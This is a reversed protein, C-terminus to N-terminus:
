FIQFFISVKKSIEDKLQFGNVIYDRNKSNLSIQNANIFFEDHVDVLQGHFIWSEIFNIFPNMSKSLFHLILSNNVPHSINEKSLKLLYIILDIGRVFDVDGCIDLKCLKIVFEFQDLLYKLKSHLSIITFNNYNLLSEIIISNYYKLYEKIAITFSTFISGRGSQIFKLIKLHYSGIKSFKECYFSLAEASVGSLHLQVNFHFQDKTKNLLFNHSPLSILVNLCDVILNKENIITRTIPVQLNSALWVSNLYNYYFSDFVFRSSDILLNRSEFNFYLGTKRSEWDYYKPYPTHAVNQWILNMLDESISESSVSIESGKISYFGEDRNCKILSMTKVCIQEDEYVDDMENERKEKLQNQKLLKKKNIWEFNDNSPIQWVIPHLYDIEPLNFRVNTGDKVNTLRSSLSSFLCDRNLKQSYDLSDDDRNLQFYKSFVENQKLSDSHHFPLNEKNYENNLIDIQWLSTDQKFIYTIFL